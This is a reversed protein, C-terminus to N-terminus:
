FLKVESMRRYKEDLETNNALTSTAQPAAGDASALTELSKSYRYSLSFNVKVLKVIITRRWFDLSLEIDTYYGVASYVFTIRRVTVICSARLEFKLTRGEEILKKWKLSASVLHVFM